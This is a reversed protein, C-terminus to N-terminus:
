TVEEGAKREVHDENSMCLCVASAWLLIAGVLGEPGAIVTGGIQALILSASMYPFPAKAQAQTGPTPPKVSAESV